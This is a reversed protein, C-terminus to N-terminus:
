FCVNVEALGLAQLLDNCSSEVAKMLKRLADLQGKGPEEKAAGFMEPAVRIKEQIHKCHRLIEEEYFGNM